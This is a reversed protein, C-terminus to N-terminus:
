GNRIFQQMIDAAAQGGAPGLRNGEQTRAPEQRPSSGAANVRQGEAERERREKQLQRYVALNRHLCRELHAEYRSMTGYTHTQMLLDAIAEGDTLQASKAPRGQGKKKPKSGGKKTAEVVYQEYRDGRQRRWLLVIIHAAFANELMDKPALIALLANAFEVYEKQDEGPLLVQYTQLGCTVISESPAEKGQAAQQGSSSEATGGETQTQTKSIM